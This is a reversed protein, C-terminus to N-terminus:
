AAAKWGTQDGSTGYNTDYNYTSVGTNPVAIDSTVATGDLNFFKTGGINKIQAGGAVGVKVGTGGALEKGDLDLVGTAKISLKKDGVVTFKGALKVTGEVDMGDSHLTTNAPLTLNGTSAVSIKGGNHTLASPTATGSITVAAKVDVPVAGIKDITVNAGNLVIGGATTIKDGGTVTGTATIAVKATKTGAITGAIAVNNNVDGSLTLAKTTAVTVAAGAGVSTTIEANDSVAVTMNAGVKDIKGTLTLGGTVQIKDGAVVGNAGSVTVKGTGTIDKTLTIANSNTNITLTKNELVELDKSPATTVAIDGNIQIKTVGAANLAATLGANDTVARTERLDSAVTITFETEVPFGSVVQTGKMIVKGGSAQTLKIDTYKEAVLKNNLATVLEATTPASAGKWDVKVTAPAAIDVGLIKDTNEPPPVTGTTDDVELVFAVGLKTHKNDSWEAYVRDNADTVIDKLEVQEVAWKKTIYFLGADNEIAYYKADAVNTGIGLVDYRDRVTGEHNNFTFTTLTCEEIIGKSNVRVGNIAYLGKDAEDLRKRNGDTSGSTTKPWDAMTAADIKITTLKGDVVAPLEYYKGEDTTIIDSGDKVFYTNSVATNPTSVADIYVVDVQSTYVRNTVFAVGKVQAPDLTPANAYGTYVAYDRGGFDGKGTRQTAIMFLTKSTTYYSKSGTPDSVNSSGATSDYKSMLTIESKGTTFETKKGTTGSTLMDFNGSYVVTSGTSTHDIKKYGALSLKYIDNDGVTYTVIDAVGDTVLNKMEAGNATYNIGHLNASDYTSGSKYNMGMLLDWNDMTATVEKQTGDPLLLTVGRRESGHTNSSGVGIVAAYLKESEVGSVYLAFNYKDLYVNIESKNVTFSAIGNPMPEGNEDDIRKKESYKYTTGDVTFSSDSAGKGGLTTDVVSSGNWKTLVGTVAPTIVDADQVYYKSDSTNYAATYAVMDGVNMGTADFTRVTAPAPQTKTEITVTEKSSNVGTVQGVFTDIAVVKEIATHDDAKLYVQVLRGNATLGAVLAADIKGNQATDPKYANIEAATTKELGNVIVKATANPATGGQAGNISVSAKYETWEYDAAVVEESGDINVYKWTWVSEVRGFADEDSTLRLDPFKEECLRIPTINSRIIEGNYTYRNGSATQSGTHTRVKVNSTLAVGNVSVNLGEYEVLPATLSNFVMQAMDDRDMPSATTLLVNTSLGAKRALAAAKVAWDANGEIGENKTNYGLMRAVMTAFEVSTVTKNPNFNGNGDGVIYGNGACYDIYPKGWHTVPVDKFTAANTAALADAASAGLDLRAIAVAAEARTLTGDPNFNGNEDGVLVGIKNSVAVAVQNDIKDDDKFSTAAGAGVVMMGLLMVLALALSLVKKLNRM